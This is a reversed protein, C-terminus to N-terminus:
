YDPLPDYAVLVLLDAVMWRALDGAVRAAKWGHESGDKAVLINEFMKVDM